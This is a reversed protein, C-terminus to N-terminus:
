EVEWLTLTVNDMSFPVPQMVMVGDQVETYKRAPIDIQAVYKRSIGMTLMGFANECIDIHVPFDREFRSLDLSLEGGRFSVMNGAASYEIKTGPEKEVIIM